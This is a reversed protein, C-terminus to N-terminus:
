LSLSSVQVAVVLLIKNVVPLVTYEKYKESVVVELSRLCLRPLCSCSLVLSSEEISPFLAALSISSAGGSEEAVSARFSSLQVGKPILLCLCRQIKIKLHILPSSISKSKFSVM